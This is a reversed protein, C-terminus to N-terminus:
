VEILEYDASGLGIAQAHAISTRWDTDPHALHFVDDGHNCHGHGLDELITGKSLPATKLCLDACAQDLAVPDTSAAMGINPIIPSDNHGWCDCEPSVDVILSIHFQPKGNVVALTYEAIKENLEKSDNYSGVGCARPQCMAVCQGCGVCKSYDIEAKRNVLHAADHSCYKVCQGCGICQDKNISPQCASHLFLKGAVSAAGMGINKLCGGFGAQEHGKFHNLSVVIDADAIARGIKATSCHKGGPVPMEAVNDGKIGDAIVVPASVQIPNYGNSMASIIHDVGNSRGGSYLTCSDSLYPKGGLRSIYRALTDAWQPRLYALNGPEGFHIKIVAFKDKWDINEIGAAKLLRELKKPLSLGPKTRLNSFYVKSKM